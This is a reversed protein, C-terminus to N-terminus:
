MSFVASIEVPKHPAFDVYFIWNWSTLLINESKIDGHCVQQTHIDQLGKILQFSIWMKQEFNLFPRTSTTM